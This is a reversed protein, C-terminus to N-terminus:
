INRKSLCHCCSHFVSLILDALVVCEASTLRHVAFHYNLASVCVYGIETETERDRNGDRERKGERGM